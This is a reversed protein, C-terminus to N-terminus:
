KLLMEELANQKVSLRRSQTFATLVSTSYESFAVIKINMLSLRCFGSDLTRSEIRRCESHQIFGVSSDLM